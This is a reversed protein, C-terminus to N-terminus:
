IKANKILFDKCKEIELSRNEIVDLAQIILVDYGMNKLSDLKENDYKWIEEAYMKRGSHWYKAEYIRNDAHWYSGNYEIVCNNYYYDLYYFKNGTYVMYEDSKYGSISHTKINDPLVDDLDKFFLNAESSTASFNFMRSKLISNARDIGHIDILQQYTKGKSKNICAKIDMPTSDWTQKRKDIMQNYLKTGLENGYKTIYFSLNRTQMNKIKENAFDQSFGKLIWFDFTRCSPQMKKVEQALFNRSTQIESIKEVACSESYGKAIWYKMMNPFNKKAENSKRNKYEKYKINANPGYRKEYYEYSSIPLTKLTNYREILDPEFNLVLDVVIEENDEFECYKKSILLNNLEDLQINSLNEKKLHKSVKQKNLFSELYKSKPLSFKESTILKKREHKQTGIEKGYLLILKELGLTKISKCHQFLEYLNKTDPNSLMLRGVTLYISDTIETKNHKLWEEFFLELKELQSNSLSINGFEKIIISKESFESARMKGTKRLAM